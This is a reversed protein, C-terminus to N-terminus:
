SPFLTATLLANKKWDGGDLTSYTLTSTYGAIASFMTWMVIMATSLSGRNAPSLFGLLAFVTPCETTDTQQAGRVCKNPEGLTVSCMATLQAGTGVIVSLLM